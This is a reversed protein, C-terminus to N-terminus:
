RPEPEPAVLKYGVGHVTKVMSAAGEVDIKQRLKKLTTRVANDTAESESSWAREILAEASFVQNPHRMLFALLNFEQRALHIEQGGRLVRFSTPDLTLDGATLTNTGGGTGRRLLARVRALLEKFHFPKTLYDDAGSDLGEEKEDVKTKGTLMLVPTTGGNNRFQRLVKTGSLGPLDWDLVILDYQFVELREAAEQGDGSEEVMHHEHCLWDAVIGRMNLDDEVILIKAM